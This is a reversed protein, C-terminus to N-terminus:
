DGMAGVEERKETVAPKAATALLGDLPVFGETKKEGLVHERYLRAMKENELKQKLAQDRARAKEERATKAIGKDDLDHQRGAKM